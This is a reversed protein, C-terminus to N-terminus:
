CKFTTGISDGNFYDYLIHPDNGNLIITEINSQTALQAAMVKTSMGGTGRNSVSGGAMQKIEDTIEEVVNILKADENKSPDKDYLGNTDTLIILKDVEILKAVIASLMDNDGFNEGALEDVAVTDNENVIPIVEMDLLTNVTNKVNDRTIENEITRRTLLIQAITHNYEGFFKDYIFMLESQGVAAAAQKTKTDQPREKLRLKGVGVGVAGSSVLIIKKGSNQLESLVKSLQEVRQLNIRGNKHTLTSTGVKILIKESKM